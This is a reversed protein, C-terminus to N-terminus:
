RCAQKRRQRVPSLRGVPCPTERVQRKYRGARQPMWESPFGTLLLRREPGAVTELCSACLLGHRCGTRMGPSASFVPSTLIHPLPPPLRSTLWRQSQQLRPLLALPWRQLNHLTLQAATTCVSLETCLSLIMHQM